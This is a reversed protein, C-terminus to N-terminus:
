PLKLQRHSGLVLPFEGTEGTAMIGGSGGTGMLAMSVIDLSFNLVDLFENLQGSSSVDLRSNDLDVLLDVGAALRELLGLELDSTGSVLVGQNDVVDGLGLLQLLGQRRRQFDLGQLNSM